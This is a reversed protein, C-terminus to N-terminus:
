RRPPPSAARRRSTVRRLAELLRDNDAAPGVTIRIGHGPYDKVLVDYEALASTVATARSGLPLWVFNGQGERVAVGLARLAGALRGREARAGAVTRALHETDRFAAIAAAEAASGIPFAVGARAVRDILGPQAIGYGVRLGALGYAKSFTRTSIVNPHAHVLELGRAAEPHDVFEGYAEDFVVVVHAPLDRILGVVDVHTAITGTPSHPSCVVVACTRDTVAAALDVLDGGGDPALRALTATLGLGALLPLFADFSPWCLAVEGPGAALLSQQIVGISGHGVVINDPTVACGQAIAERL